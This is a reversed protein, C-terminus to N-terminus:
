RTAPKAAPVPAPVPAPMTAVGIVVPFAFVRSEPGGPMDMTARVQVLRTGATASSARIKLHTVTGAQVKEYAVFGDPEIITLGEGGTVELRLVPAPAAPLAAVDILFPEGPRPVSALDFRIELPAMSKGIPVGSAMRNAEIVAPDVTPEAPPAVKTAVPKRSADAPTSSGSHCGTLLMAACGFGALAVGAQVLVGNRRRM